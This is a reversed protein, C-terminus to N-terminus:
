PWGVGMVARVRSRGERGGGGFGPPTKQKTKKPHHADVHVDGAGEVDEVEVVCRPGIGTARSVCTAAALPTGFVLSAKGSSGSPRMSMSM